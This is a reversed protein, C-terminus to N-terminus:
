IFIQDFKKKSTNKSSNKKSPDTTPADNAKTNVVEETKFVEKIQYFKENVKGGNQENPMAKYELQKQNQNQNQTDIKEKSYSQIKRM